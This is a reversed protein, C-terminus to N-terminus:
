RLSLFMLVQDRRDTGALQLAAPWRGVETWGFPRYFEELGLGSRVDLHLSDLGVDERAARAVETMLVRGIGRGRHRPSTQVRKVTAWHATLPDANGVLVLWGALDGDVTVLLLRGTGPGLSAVVAEVAPRVDDDTVPATPFGVAGGTNVVDRWCVLLQRCLDDSVDDPSTLWRMWTEAPLHDM